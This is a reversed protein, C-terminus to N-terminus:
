VARRFAARSKPLCLLVVAVALLATALTNAGSFLSFASGESFEASLRSIAALVVVTSVAWFTSLGVAAWWAAVMRRRLGWWLLAMGAARIVARPYEAVGTGESEIRLATANALVVIGYALLAYSAWWVEAPIQSNGDEARIM